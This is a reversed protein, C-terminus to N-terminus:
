GGFYGPEDVSKPINAARDLCRGASVLDTTGLAAVVVTAGLEDDEAVWATLGASTFIAVSTAAQRESVEVLLHGGPALWDGAEAAVRRQVDLGDAGGDLAVAPEYLRAEPPLLAIEQTPVYPTNVLLVDVRGRLAGPLPAFLDGEFVRGFPEVNRRACRVAVPDIDSAYLDVGPVVAALAVGLAGTGCCLDVVVAHPQTLAVAQAVLFQTRWRPVFVGPEVVIRLGCFEAFGVVQELPLGSVRQAVKAALDADSTAAAVLLAAEDEAFVCGAGRLALSVRDVAASVPQDPM